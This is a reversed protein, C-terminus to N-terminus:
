VAAISNSLIENVDELFAMTRPSVIGSSTSPISVGYPSLSDYFEAEDLDFQPHSPQLTSVNAGGKSTTLAGDATTAGDHSTVSSHRPLLDSGTVKDENDSGPVPLDILVDDFPIALPDLEEFLLATIGTIDLIENNFDPMDPKLDSESIALLNRRAQTCCDHPYKYVTSPRRTNRRRLTVEARIAM